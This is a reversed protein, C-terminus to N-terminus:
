PLAHRVDAIAARLAARVDPHTLVPRRRYANVTFFFSAGTAPSRRYRSMGFHHCARSEHTM